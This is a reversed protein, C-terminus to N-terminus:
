NSRRHSETFPQIEKQALSIKLKTEETHKRGTQFQRIKEKHEESCPKAVLEGSAYKAKLLM